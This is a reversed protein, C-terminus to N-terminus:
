IILLLISFLLHCLSDRTKDWGYNGGVELVTLLKFNLSLAPVKGLTEHLSHSRAKLSARSVNGESVRPAKCILHPASGLLDRIGIVILIHAKTM